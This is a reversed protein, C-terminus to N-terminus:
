RILKLLRTNGESDGITIFNKYIAAAGFTKKWDDPRWHDMVSGNKPNLIWLGDDKSAYVLAHLFESYTPSSFSKGKSKVSHCWDISKTLLNLSCLKGDIGTSYLYDGVVIPIGTQPSSLNFAHSAEGTDAKFCYVGGIGSTFYVEGFIFCVSDRWSVPSMWSSAPLENQWIRKGTEFDYANAYTRYKESNGKDRGTGAFIRGNLPLVSADIHGDHVRWNQKMSVPDIAHLGDGGAVVFLQDKGNFSGIVAQGETHGKTEYSNKLQGTKLDFSYIRAHHTNHTGEGVFLTQDFITLEPTIMTGVFFKRFITGDEQNLEYAYGDDSAVFISGGSFVPSRFNGKELKTSWVSTLKPVKDTQDALEINPDQMHGVTSPPTASSPFSLPFTKRDEYNRQSPKAIKEQNQKIKWLFVPLNNFYEYGKIGGLILFNFILGSFLVRPKMLVELLRKPGETSLSIGFLGAIFSAIVTLGVSLATLPIMVTPIILETFNGQNLLLEEM